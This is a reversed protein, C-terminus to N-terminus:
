LFFITYSNCNLHYVIPHSLYIAYQAQFGSFFFSFFLISVIKSSITFHLLLKEIFLLSTLVQYKASPNVINSTNIDRNNISKTCRGLYFKSVSHEYLYKNFNKETFIAKLRLSPLTHMIRFHYAYCKKEKNKKKKNNNGNNKQEKSIITYHPGDLKKRNENSEGPIQAHKNFM